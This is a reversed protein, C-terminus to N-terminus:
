RVTVKQNFILKGSPADELTVVLVEGLSLSEKWTHTLKKGASLTEMGPPDQIDSVLRSNLGDVFKGDIERKVTIKVDKLVLADGGKNELILGSAAKATIDLQVQPSGVCGAIISGAFIIAILLTLKGFNSREIIM